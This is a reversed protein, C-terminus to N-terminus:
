KFTVPYRTSFECRTSEHNVKRGWTLITHGADEVSKITPMEGKFIGIRYSEDILYEIGAQHWCWLLYTPEFLLQSRNWSSPISNLVERDILRPIHLVPNPALIGQCSFFGLTDWLWGRWNNLKRNPRPRPGHRVLPRSFETVPDAVSKLLLMDDHWWIWRQFHRCLIEQHEWFRLVKNADASHQWNTITTINNDRLWNEPPLDKQETILVVPWDGIQLRIAAVVAPLYDNKKPRYSIAIPVDKSIKM